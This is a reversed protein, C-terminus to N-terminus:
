HSGSCPNTFRIPMLNPSRYRGRKNLSPAEPECTCGRRLRTEHTESKPSNVSIFARAASSRRKMEATSFCRLFREAHIPHPIAEGDCCDHQLKVLVSRLIWHSRSM